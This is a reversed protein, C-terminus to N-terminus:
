RTSKGDNWRGSFHLQYKFRSNSQLLCPISFILLLSKECILFELKSQRERGHSIVSKAGSVRCKRVGFQVQSVSALNNVAGDLLTITDDVSTENTVSDVINAATEVAQETETM